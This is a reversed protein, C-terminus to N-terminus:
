RKPLYIPRSFKLIDIVVDSCGGTNSEGYSAVCMGGQLNLQDVSLDQISSALDATILYHNDLDAIQINAM